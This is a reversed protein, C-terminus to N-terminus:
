MGGDKSAPPPVDASILVAPKKSNNRWWHSTAGQEAVVDGAKHTIPVSCTSRYETVEGSVVYINAPREAHSHWPVVGTPQIVLRRMRLMRGPIQYAALDVSAIVDDTVASPMSPGPPTVDVGEKGAPCTGAFALTPVALMAAAAVAGFLM